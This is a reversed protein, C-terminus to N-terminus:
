NFFKDFHKLPITGTPYEIILDTGNVFKVKIEPFNINSVIIYILKKAKEEFVAQDIKRGQGLMNSPVFKCGSNTFTKQEYKINKDNVDVLDYNKCGTVHILPYNQALWREIFHSFVRGDKFIAIVQEEPLDGFGYNSIHHIFTTNLIIQATNENDTNHDM